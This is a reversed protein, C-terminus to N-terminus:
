DRYTVQITAMRNTYTDRYPQSKESWNWAPQPAVAWSV